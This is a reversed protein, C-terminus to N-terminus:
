VNEEKDEEEMENHESDCPKGDAYSNSRLMLETEMETFM